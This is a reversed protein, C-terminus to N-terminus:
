AVRERTVVYFALKGDEAVVEVEGAAKAALVLRVADRLLINSPSAKDTLVGGAEQLVAVDASGDVGDATFQVWADAVAMRPSQGNGSAADGKRYGYRAMVMKHIHADAEGSAKRQAWRAKGARSLAERGEPTFQRPM